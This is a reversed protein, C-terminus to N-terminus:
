RMSKIRRRCHEVLNMYKCPHRENTECQAVSEVYCTNCQRYLRGTCFPFYSNRELLLTAFTCLGFRRCLIAGKRFESRQIVYIRFRPYQM